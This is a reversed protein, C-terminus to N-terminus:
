SPLHLPYEGYKKATNIYSWVNEEPIDDHLSHDTSIIYGGGPAGIKLCQLAEAEVEQPTGFVMTTKNNINGIPCLKGKYREKIIGLDMGASKEVPHYGNIGTAILDELVEWLQGDNHMIVPLGLKKMGIVIDGFPKIFHQRLHKPSILLTNFAGWDDALIFADVGGLKVVEEAVGLCFEAYANIMETILSPDEFLTYSFTNIDMLYWYLMTVPGLIGACIAIEGDNAKIADGLKTIRHPAKIEPMRYKQWDSRNKIPTDTQIMVPWGHKIYTVGWEDTYTKGETIEDELGCYGGIPIFTGDLGLKAACKVIAAGDYLETRYGLFKEQLRPSLLFEFIPVRDPIECLLAKVFRERPKM